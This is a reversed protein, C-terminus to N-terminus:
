EESIYKAPEKIFQELVTRYFGCKNGDIGGKKHFNVMCPGGCIKEAICGSCNSMRTYNRTLDFDKIFLSQFMSKDWYQACFSVRGDPAISAMVDDGAISCPFNRTTGTSLAYLIPSVASEISIGTDRFNAYCELLKRALERGNVAWTLDDGQFPTNFTITEFSFDRRLSDVFEPVGSLIQSYPTILFWREVNYRELIRFSTIVKRYTGQGRIQDNENEPGDLSLGIKIRHSALYEAIEKTILTGNSTITFIPEKILGDDFVKEIMSVAMKILDFMLLPEGGFFHYKISKDKGYVFTKEIIQRLLTESMKIPQFARNLVFCNKCKLNCVEGLVIRFAVFSPDFVMEHNSDRRRYDKLLGGEGLEKAIAIDDGIIKQKALCMRLVRLYNDELSFIDLTQTNFVNGNALYLYDNLKEM